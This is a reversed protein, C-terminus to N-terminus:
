APPQVRAHVRGQVAAVVHGLLLANGPAREVARELGARAPAHEEASVRQFHALSPSDSEDIQVLRRLVAARSRVPALAATLEQISCRFGDPDNAGIHTHADFPAPRRSGRGAPRVAHAGHDDGAGM